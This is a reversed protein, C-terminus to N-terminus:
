RWAGVIGTVAIAVAVGVLLWETGSALHAAPLLAAGPQAVHEPWPHRWAGGHYLEPVNLLGGAASLLGLIVLPGTMIWPAEHLHTQEKEGTRNPGHFTYLM